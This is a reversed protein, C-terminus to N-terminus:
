TAKDRGFDWDEGARVGCNTEAARMASFLFSRRSRVVILRSSAFFFGGRLPPCSGISIREPHQSLLLHHRRGPVSGLGRLEPARQDKSGVSLDGTVPDFNQTFGVLDLDPSDQHQWGPLSICPALDMEQVVGLGWRQVESGTVFVGSTPTGFDEVALM